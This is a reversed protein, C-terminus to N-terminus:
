LVVSSPYTPLGEEQASAIMGFDRFNSVPSIWEKKNLRLHSKSVEERPIEVVFFTWIQM